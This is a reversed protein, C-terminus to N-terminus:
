IINHKMLMHNKLQGKQNCRYNCVSCAYPKEGTHKRMHIKFHERRYSTHNCDPWKCIYVKTPESAVGVQNSTNAYFSNKSIDAFPGNNMNYNIQSCDLIPGIKNNSLHSANGFNNHIHSLFISDNIFAAPKKIVNMIKTIGVDSASSPGSHHEM